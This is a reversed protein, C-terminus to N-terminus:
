APSIELLENLLWLDSSVFTGESLGTPMPITGPFAFNTSSFAAMRKSNTHSLTVSLPNRTNTACEIAFIELPSAYCRTQCDPSSLGKPVRKVRFFTALICAKSSHCKYNSLNERPSATCWYKVALGVQYFQNPESSVSSPAWAEKLM